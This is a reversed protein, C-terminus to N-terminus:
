RSCTVSTWTRKHCAPCTMWRDYERRPLWAGIPFQLMLYGLLGVRTVAACSSCAVTLIGRRPVPDGATASSTSRATGAAPTASSYLARKGAPRVHRRAIERRNEIRRAGPAPPDTTTQAEADVPLWFLARKGLPDPGEPM